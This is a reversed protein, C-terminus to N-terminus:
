TAAGIHKITKGLLHDVEHQAIQADLGELNFIKLDGNLDTFQLTVKEYREKIATFGPVSLCQEPKKVLNYRSLIIPNIYIIGKYDLYWNYLVGIQPAAIAVGKNEQMEMVAEQLYPKVEENADIVDHCVKNLVGESNFITYLM